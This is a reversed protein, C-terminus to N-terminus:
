AADKDAAGDADSKQDDAADKPSEKDTTKDNTKPTVANAIDRLGSTVKEGIDKAHRPTRSTVSSPAPEDEGEPKAHRGSGETTEGKDEEEDAADAEEEEDTTEEDTEEAPTLIEQVPKLVEQVPKLAQEVPKLAQEVPKLIEKMPDVVGEEEGEVETLESDETASDLETKADELGGESSLPLLRTNASPVANAAPPAVQQQALALPNLGDLVGQVLSGLNGLPGLGGGTLLNILSTIANPTAPTPNGSFFEKTFGKVLLNIVDPIVQVPNVAPFSFFSTPIGAETLTREYEGEPTRYVDTYGLNVLSTLAPALANALMGFPNTSAVGLTAISTIDSLLYLPELLPLTESGVTLYLNIALPEGLPNDLIEDLQTELQEPVTELTLGRLIYTPLVFGMLSNAMSFPNPWAAFDSLLDYEVTADVKVPILNAGGLSLGTNLIPIGGRSTVQTEPTVTDIGFLGFLPYLRAGLGGNARGPNRLLLMPLVTISGLLPGDSNNPGGPQNPLDALVQDYAMGAAFAGLGFGVVVPVRLDVADLGEPITLALTDLLGGLIPNLGEVTDALEGILGSLGVPLYDTGNIENAVSNPLGPVWGLDTGLLKLLTFPPGTTIVNLGPIDLGALNLPDSLDLGLLSLLNTLTINGQADTLGLQDLVLILAPTLPGVVASLLPTIDIPVAGLVGTLLDAPLQQLLSELDLGAAQALAALNVNGVVGRIVADAITQSLDYAVTGLGGTLDPIQDPPPFPRIAAALDFDGNVVPKPKPPPPSAGVTMATATATAVGVMAIKKSRSRRKRHRAAM